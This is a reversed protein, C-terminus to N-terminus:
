PRIEFLSNYIIEAEIQTGKESPHFQDSGYYSIDGTRDIYKKWEVGVPCLIADVSGEECPRGRM